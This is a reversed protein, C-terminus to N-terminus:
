LTTWTFMMSPDNVLVSLINLVLQAQGRDENKSSPHVMSCESIYM